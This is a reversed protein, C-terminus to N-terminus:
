GRSEAEAQELIETFEKQLNADPHAYHQADVAVYLPTGEDVLSETSQLMNRMAQAREECKEDILQLVRRKFKEVSM